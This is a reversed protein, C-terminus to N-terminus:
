GFRFVQDCRPTKLSVSSMNSINAAVTRIEGREVDEVSKNVNIEGEFNLDVQEVDRNVEFFVKTQNQTTKIGEETIELGSCEIANNQSQISQESTKGISTNAWTYMGFGMLAIMVFLFITGPRFLLSGPRNMM